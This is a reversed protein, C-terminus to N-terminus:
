VSVLVFDPFLFVGTYYIRGSKRVTWTEKSETEVMNFRVTFPRARGELEGHHPPVGSLEM